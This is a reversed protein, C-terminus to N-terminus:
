RPQLEQIQRTLNSGLVTLTKIEQERMLDIKQHLLEIELEAKVNVEYDNGAQLRDVQAQRNQSMMIAPATYAAQFSLVLNLLIFPYPDWGKAGDLLNYSIWVLIILSQGVIFPWSGMTNAVQDAVRQGLSLAPPAEPLRPAQKIRHQKRHQRLQKLLEADHEAASKSLDRADDMVHEKFPM